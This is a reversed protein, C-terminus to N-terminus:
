STILGAMEIQTRLRFYNNSPAIQRRDFAVTAERAPEMQNASDCVEHNYVMPQCCNLSLVKSHELLYQDSADLNRSSVLCVLLPRYTLYTNSREESRESLNLFRMVVESHFLTQAKVWFDQSGEPFYAVLNLYGLGWPVRFSM